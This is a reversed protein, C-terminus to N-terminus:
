SAESAGLQDQATLVGEANAEAWQALVCVPDLLTRGLATLRYEVGVPATPLVRREVLGNRELKRVTQTLMKKSIGGIQKRLESYRRPGEGLAFVVVISWTDAILDLTTRAPCDALFVDRPREFDGVALLPGSATPTMISVWPVSHNGM